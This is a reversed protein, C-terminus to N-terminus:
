GNVGKYDTSKSRGTLRLLLSAPGRQYWHGVRNRDPQGMAQTLRDLV